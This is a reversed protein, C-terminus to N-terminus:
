MVINDVYLYNVEVELYDKVMENVISRWFKLSDLINVKDVSIFKKNRKMVIEFVIKVIRRIENVNYREIDYVSKVGDIVEIGREGFYIGGILERVICIDIGNKVIEDKFLLENKLLVYLVVLRLNCYFKM